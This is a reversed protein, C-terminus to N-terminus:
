ISKAKTYNQNYIFVKSSPPDTDDLKDSPDTMGAMLSLHAGASYGFLCLRRSDVGLAKANAKVWRIADKTDLVPAPFKFRPALRYSINFVAIGNESFRQAVSEMDQRKGKYWGGGHIVICVPTPGPESRAPYFDGSLKVETREAYVINKVVEGQTVKSSNPKTTACSSLLAISGVLFVIKTNTFTFNLKM